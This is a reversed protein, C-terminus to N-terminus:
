QVRTKIFEYERKAEADNPYDSIYSKMKKLAEDYKGLHELGVIENRRLSQEETIDNFQLGLTIAKLGEEYNELKFYGMGLQNYVAGTKENNDDGLYLLYNHVAGEYDGQKECISGIYYYGGTFGNSVVEELQNKAREYDELYYYVKALNYKDDATNVALGEMSNLLEKAEDEKNDALLAFYKGFYYNYNKNDLEIAKNYDDMSEKYKGLRSYIYARKFYIDGKASTENLIKSLCELAKEYLASKELANSLYTLIDLDLDPMDKIDLAKEFADISSIYDRGYYHAIGKGRLSMKNNKRVIANDKDLYAKEFMRIASDYEELMILTFGYDIYYEARNENKEIAKIFNEEAKIYNGGKFYNVGEKYYSGASKSCGSLFIVALVLIISRKLYGIRKRIDM